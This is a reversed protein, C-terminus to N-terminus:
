DFLMQFLDDLLNKEMVCSVESDLKKITIWRGDHLQGRVVGEIKNTIFRVIYLSTGMPVKQTDVKARISYKPSIIVKEAITIYEGPRYFEECIIINFYLLLNGFM